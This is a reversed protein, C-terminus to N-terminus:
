NKKWEEGIGIREEILEGIRDKGVKKIKIGKRVERGMVVRGWGREIKVKKLIRWNRGSREEKREIGKM